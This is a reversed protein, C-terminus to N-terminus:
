AFWTALEGPSLTPHHRSLLSSITYIVIGEGVRSCPCFLPQVLNLCILPGIEGGSGRLRSDSNLPKDNSGIECIMRDVLRLWSLPYGQLREYVALSERFFHPFIVAM